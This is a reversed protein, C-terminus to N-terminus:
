PDEIINYEQITGSRRIIELGLPLLNFKLLQEKHSRETRGSFRLHHFGDSNLVIDTKFYPNFITKQAAFIMRAKEKCRNFYEIENEM